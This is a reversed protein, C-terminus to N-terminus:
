EAKPEAPVAVPEAAPVPPVLEPHAKAIATQLEDVETALSSVAKAIADVQVVLDATSTAQETAPEAQACSSLVVFLFLRIM